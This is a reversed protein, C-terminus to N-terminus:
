PEIKLLYLYLIYNSDIKLFVYKQLNVIYVSWSTKFHPINQRKM